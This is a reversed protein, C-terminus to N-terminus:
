RQLLRLSVSAYANTDPTSFHLVDGGNVYRQSRDQGPNLESFRETGVTGGTPVTPAANLRVFVNSTPGYAFKASYKDTAVGPVTFSEPTGTQVNIQYSADSFPITLDYNSNYSVAM